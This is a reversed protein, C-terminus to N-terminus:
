FIVIRYKSTNASLSPLLSPGTGQPNVALSQSKPLHNVERFRMNEMLLIPNIISGQDSHKIGEWIWTNFGLAWTFTNPPPAKM